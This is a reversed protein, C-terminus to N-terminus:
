VDIDLLKKIEDDSFTDFYNKIAEGKFHKKIALRAHNISDNKNHTHHYQYGKILGVYFYLLEDRNKPYITYEMDDQGFNIDKGKYRGNDICKMHMDNRDMFILAGSVYIDDGILQIKTPFSLTNNSEIIYEVLNKM